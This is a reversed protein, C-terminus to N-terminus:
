FNPLCVQGPRLTALKLLNAVLNQSYSLCSIQVNKTNSYAGSRSLYSHHSGHLLLIAFCFKISINKFHGHFMKQFVSFM